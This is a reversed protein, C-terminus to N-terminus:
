FVPLDFSRAYEMLDRVGLQSSLLMGLFWYHNTDPHHYSGALAAKHLFPQQPM